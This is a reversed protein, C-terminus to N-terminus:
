ISRVVVGKRWRSFIMVHTCRNYVTPVDRSHLTSADRRHAITPPRPRPRRSFRDRSEKRLPITSRSPLLTSGDYPPDSFLLSVAPYETVTDRGGPGGRRRRRLRHSTSAPKKRRRKRWADPGRFHTSRTKKRKGSTFRHVYITNKRMLHILDTIPIYM